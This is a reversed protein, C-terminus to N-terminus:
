LKKLNKKYLVLKYNDISVETFKYFFNILEKNNKNRDDFECKIDKPILYITLNEACIFWFSDYKLLDNTEVVKIKNSKVNKINIFYNNILKLDFVFPHFFVNKTKSNILEKIIIQINDKKIPPKSISFFINSFNLLIIILFIINKKRFNIKLFINLSHISFIIICPVIFIIYHPKAVGTKFLSYIVIALYSSSIIILNFFLIKNELINKKRRFFIIILVIILILHFAGLYINGFFNNFFFGLFFEKYLKAHHGTIETAKLLYEFNFFLYIIISFFFAGLNRKSFFFLCIFIFQAFIVVLTTPYFSLLIVASVINPIFYKNFKKLTKIFFYFNILFLFLVISQARLEQSNWILYINLSTLTCCTLNVYYNNSIIKSIYYVLLISLSSIIITFIKGVDPDYGFFFFVCRILYYYFKPTQEVVISETLFERSYNHFYSFNKKPDSLYFTYQEDWWFSKSDFGYFRFILGIIILILIALKKNNLIYTL